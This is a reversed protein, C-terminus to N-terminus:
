GGMAAGAAFVGAAAPEEGSPLLVGPSLLPMGVTEEISTRLRPLAAGGGVLYIGELSSSRYTFQYFNIVKLIEVAVRECLEGVGPSSLVNQYDSTKYTNALFADVGLEDAVALDINRGDLGIQRTAQVRDRWVVTIRTNQHGLDVFCYEEGGSKQAKALHILAMEQPLITKLAFGARSFMQVYEALTQKAAAAAMMPIGQEESEGESPACVAYDCFYQDAVGQIFDTFEYPLNMMLQQTTMQPMTVLRCIVQSPPLVLAAPGRPLSLERKTQKLFQVFAHPLTINGSGDVLNEPLRVEETRLTEGRLVAVKMSSSGVDFGLRTRAM